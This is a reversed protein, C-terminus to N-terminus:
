PRLAAFGARAVAGLSRTAEVDCLAQGLERLHTHGPFWFPRPFALLPGALVVKEVHDLLLANHSWGIGSQVDSLTAGPYGGWPPAGLGFACAPWVNLTVTGYRLARVAEDLARRLTPDSEVSRPAILMANLSGWLRENAFRTALPLFDVADDAPLATESLISCFPEVRFLPSDLEPDLSSVFAWPLRGPRGDGIKEVSADAAAGLLKGFRQEAGPYFAARTPTRAFAARIRSLLEDRQRFGRATVVMKAANCNFSANHTAMGVISQAAADLERDSYDAPVVLVPSVNGLESTVRKKTLPDGASRRREREAGPPGWVIHDHTDVSGTVHIGDIAPHQTLYEGVEAGGYVIALYGAAILPAFAREYLPGLYANVPSMKLVCVAGEVFSHYLVDLVSISGANGAGLVLVVRGEPDRQRYFSAQVESIRQPLVEPELWATCRWGRFLARDLKDHPTLVVHTRGDSTREVRSADIHPAGSEAVEHLSEAFLRLARVSIDPGSFWEEGASPDRPDVGKERNGIEVMAGSADHFRARVEQLLAAKRRPALRAFGRAEARLRDLAADLAARDTPPPRSL